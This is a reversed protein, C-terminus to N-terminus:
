PFVEIENLAAGDRDKDSVQPWDEVLPWDIGLEPDNWLLTQENSPDYYDTCKYVFQTGDELSLFGHAFGEPVWLMRRNKSSLVIGYWERFTPSSARLDVIVDYVTGATVRVLKGQPHPNQFHLGRLVGKASCSQNDQVFNLALGAATFNRANWSEFFYGRSDSYVAPEILKAGALSTECIKM